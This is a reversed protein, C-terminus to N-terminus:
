KKRWINSLSKATDKLSNKISDAIKQIKTQRQEIINEILSSLKRKQQPPMNEINLLDELADDSLISLRKKICEIMEARIISYISKEKQTVSLWFRLSFIETSTLTDREVYFNKCYFDIYIDKHISVLTSRILCDYSELTNASKIRKTMYARLFDRYDDSNLKGLHKPIDINNEDIGEVLYGRLLIKDPIITEHTIKDKYKNILEETRNTRNEYLDFSLSNNLMFWVEQIIPSNVLYLIEESEAWEFAQQRRENLTLSEWYIEIFNVLNERNFDSNNDFIKLKYEIFFQMRNPNGDIRNKFDYQLLPWCSEYHSLEQILMYYEPTSEAYIDQLEKSLHIIATDTDDFKELEKMLIFVIAAQEGIGTFLQVIKWPFSNLHLSLYSTILSILYDNESTNLRNEYKVFAEILLKILDYFENSSLLLSVQKIQSLGDGQLLYNYFKDEYSPMGVKIKRVISQYKEKDFLKSITALYLFVAQKAIVEEYSSNQTRVYLDMYFLVVKELYAYQGKKIINKITHNFIESLQDIYEQKVKSSTFLLINEMEMDSGIVENGESFTFVKAINELDDFDYSNFYEMFTYFQYLKEPHEFTLNSIFEPYLNGQESIKSRYDNVFDFLYFHYNKENEDFSFDTEGIVINIDLCSGPDYQYSSFSIEKALKLSFAKTILVLWKIGEDMTNVNIVLKRGDIRSLLYAQIMQMLTHKDSNSSTYDDVDMSSCNVIAQPLEVIDTKDEKKWEKWKYLNIPWIDSFNDFFLGHMFYNGYREGAYDKGVYVSRSFVFKSDSYKKYRLAIPFLTDIQENTPSSPLNRPPIYTGLKKIEEADYSEFGPSMAKVQFGPSKDYGHECSTFYLQEANM